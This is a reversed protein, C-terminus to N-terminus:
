SNTTRLLWHSRAQAYRDRVQPTPSSERVITAGDLPWDPLKGNLVWAAQRAAGDAVYEGPPPVVVPVGFVSSAIAQVAKSAAAGGVLSVRSISAGNAALADLADALGCLVGEVVARALHAPSSNELTMGLVGGSRFLM